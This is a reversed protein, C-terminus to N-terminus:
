KPGAQRYVEQWKIKYERLWRQCDPVHMNGRAACDFLHDALLHMLRATESPKGTSIRQENRHFDCRDSWYQTQLIHNPM